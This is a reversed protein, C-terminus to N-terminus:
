TREPHRLNPSSRRNPQSSESAMVRNKDQRIGSWKRVLWSLNIVAVLDKIKRKASASTWSRSNERILDPWTNATSGLAKRTRMKRNRLGLRTTVLSSSSFTTQPSAATVSFERARLM